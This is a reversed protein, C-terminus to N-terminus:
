VEYTYHRDHDLFQLDIFCDLTDIKQCTERYHAIALTAHHMTCHLPPQLSLATVTAAATIDSWIIAASIIWRAGTIVFLLVGVIRALCHM